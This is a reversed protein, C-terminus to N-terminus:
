EIVHLLVLMELLFPGSGLLSMLCESEPVAGTKGVIM